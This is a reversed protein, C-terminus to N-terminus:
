FSGSNRQVVTNTEFDVNDIEFEKKNKQSKELNNQRELFDEDGNKGFFLEQFYYYDFTVSTRLIGDDNWNVGVEQVSTPFAEILRSQLRLNSGEDFKSITIDSVYDDRYGVNFGGIRSQSITKRVRGIAIDQWSLFFDREIMNESLIFTATVPSTDYGYYHKKQPGYYKIDSSFATRTPFSINDCRLTLERATTDRGVLGRPTAFTVEFHSAKAVGRGKIVSEVFNNIGFAM